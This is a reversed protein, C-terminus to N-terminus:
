RRERFRMFLYSGALMLLGVVMFVVVKQVTEFGALDRWFLKLAALGFFGVSLRLLSQYPAVTSNFLLGIAHLFFGVTLWVGMWNPLLHGILASYALALFLHTLWLDALWAGDAQLPYHPRRRYAVYGLLGLWAFGLGFALPEYMRVLGWVLIKDVFILGLGLAGVVVGARFALRYNHHLQLPAIKARFYSIVLLYLGTALMASAVDPRSTFGRSTLAAVLLWVCWGVYYFAYSFLYRYPSTTAQALLYGKKYILIGFLIALGSGAALYGVLLSDLTGLLAWTALAAMMHIEVRLARRQVLENLEFGFLVAAWLAVPLYAPYVRNVYSLHLLPVALYFIERLVRMIPLSPSDARIKEYFFQLVWLSVFVEVVAVKGLLTQFPFIYSNVQEVSTAVGLLVLGLHLWGFWETVQLRHRVGWWVFGYLGVLALNYTLERLYFLCPLWVVVGLWIPLAEALWHPLRAEIAALRFGLVQTPEEGVGNNTELGPQRGLGHKRLLWQLAGMVVGLSMLNLFGDTWLWIGWNQFIEGFSAFIQYLAVLLVLYGEARVGPLRFNFGCFVLAVGELAWFVGRLNRDLLAPVALGVFTGVMIFCLVQMPPALVRRWVFYGVLFVAANALYLGGLTGRQGLPEYIWYLHLLLLGAAGVLIGVSQRDLTAKPRRDAFLSVYFFLYAFATFILTEVWPALGVNGRGLALGLATSATVFTLIEAVQWKIRAAVYVATACLLWLYGFYFLPITPTDLYFPSFVGGLLSVTPVIKTQHRLALWQAVATNALILGFGVVVQGFVPFVESGALYYFLLFNIAVGL